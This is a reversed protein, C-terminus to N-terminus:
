PVDIETHNPAGDATYGYVAVVRYGGDADMAPRDKEPYCGYAVKGAKKARIQWESTPPLTAVVWRRGPSLVALQM